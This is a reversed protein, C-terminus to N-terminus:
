LDLSLEGVEDPFVTGSGIECHGRKKQGVGTFAEKEYGFLEARVFEARLTACNLSVFQKKRRASQDQIRRALM